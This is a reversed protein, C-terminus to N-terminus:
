YFLGYSGHPNIADKLSIALFNHPNTNNKRYFIGYSSSTKNCKKMPDALFHHPGTLKQISFKDCKEASSRSFLSAQLTKEISFAMLGM